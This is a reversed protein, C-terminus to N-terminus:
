IVRGLFTDMKERMSLNPISTTCQPNWQQRTAAAAVHTSVDGPLVVSIVVLAPIAIM